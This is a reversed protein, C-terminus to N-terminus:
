KRNSFPFELSFDPNFCKVSKGFEQTWGNKFELDKILKRVVEDEKKNLTRNIEPYDKAKYLPGYQTMLSLHINDSILRIFELCKKTNELHSPLVLHRVIMGRNGRNGKDVRLDGVQRYMEKIALQAVESYNSIGSYKKALYDDTYKYDPLYVDVLGELRKLIEVKEYANSNWVVPIKLGKQKAKKLVEILQVSWITPTVLNINNLGQEQLELIIKILEEDNVKKCRIHQQSIQWNQCYVCHLNCGCFFITGSGKTGSIPPEEGSHSGYWSIEFSTNM